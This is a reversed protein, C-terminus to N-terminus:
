SLYDQLHELKVWCDVGIEEGVEPIVGIPFHSLELDEQLYISLKKISVSQFLVGM